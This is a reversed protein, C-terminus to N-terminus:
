GTRANKKEWAAKALFLWHSSSMVEQKKATIFVAGGGFEGPRMKSCTVAWEVGIHGKPDFERLYAQLLSCVQDLNGCEESFLILSNQDIEWEFDPYLDVENVDGHSKLWAKQKNEPWKDWEDDSPRLLEKKFWTMEEKTLDPVEVSFLMYNNAM